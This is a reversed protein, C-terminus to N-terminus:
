EGMKEVLESTAGKLFCVYVILGSKIQFVFFKSQFYCKINNLDVFAGKKNQVYCM